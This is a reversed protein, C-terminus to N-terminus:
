GIEHQVPIEAWRMVGRRDLWREELKDEKARHYQPLLRFDGTLRICESVNEPSVFDLAVKTCSKLNRVQHPCGAPIFVAEGLGQVFTWPEIGFEDKLKRKHESTLYFVEDHVPNFVQELPSCYTHRFEKSHKRLYAKLPEVDEKRFIDWLAGGDQIKNQQDNENGLDSFEDVYTEEMRSCTEEGHFSSCKEREDQDRHLKKLKEIAYKQEETPLVEAVHMLVNVADSVDCHIKTVSDGRGLEERMGYAIYSKPGMDLKLMENPLATSINLPGTRPNTYEQFPLSNIFENGHCPLCDEFHTSTPWDKLKLMEPWSNAYMRGEFYGEFFDDSAIEVKCLALCDITQLQFSESSIKSRCLNKWMAKPEWSLHSKEDLVGRVIVPESKAWHKQFHKLEILDICSSNPCYLFNDASDKRSAAKRSSKSTNSCSCSANRTTISDQLFGFSVILTEAKDELKSIWDEALMCKLKLVASGCGGIEKPPCCIKGNQDAKWKAFENRYHMSMDGNEHEAAFMQASNGGHLYETGRNVPPLLEETCSLNNERIEKCCTICLDFECSPCSRHLDVISTKCYNCYVREDKECTSKQIRLESLPLGQINSEIKKEIDQEQNLQKLSPLLLNLVRVNNEVKHLRDFDRSPTMSAKHPRKCVGCVYTEDCSPLAKLSMEDAMKRCRSGTKDQNKLYSSGNSVMDEKGITRRKICITKASNKECRHLNGVSSVSSSTSCPSEVNGDILVKPHLSPISSSAPIKKRKRCSDFGGGKEVTSGRSRKGRRGCGSKEVDEEERGKTKSRIPPRQKRRDEECSWDADLEEIEQFSDKLEMSDPSNSLYYQFESYNISHDVTAFRRPRKSDDQTELGEATPVM